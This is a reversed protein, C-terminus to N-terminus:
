KRLPAILSISLPTASTANKAMELGYKTIFDLDDAKEGFPHDMQLISAGFSFASNGYAFQFSVFYRYM